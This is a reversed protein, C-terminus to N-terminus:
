VENGWCDWGDVCQRAFLEIRPIDGCINVIYDRICDPKRSHERRESHVVSLVNRVLPKIRKPKKKVGILCVETNQRTYYGMGWSPNGNKSTKIWDFGLGYYEFGWAKITELGQELRPFTVWLFLISTEDSIKEIPLKFIEDKTMVGNYREALGACGRVGSGSEKYEWPPDAYIIQYKKDTNFIDVKM